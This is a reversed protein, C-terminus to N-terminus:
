NDHDDYYDDDDDNNNNDDNDNDKYACIMFVFVYHVWQSEYNHKLLVILNNGYPIYNWYVCWMGIHVYHAMERM